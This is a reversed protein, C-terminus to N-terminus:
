WFFEDKNKLAKNVIEELKLDAAPTLIFNMSSLLKRAIDMLESVSYDDFYFCLPFRDKLGPNTKMLQKMKEEYGAFIFIM